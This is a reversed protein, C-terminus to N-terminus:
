VAESWSICRKSLAKWHKQPVKSKTTLFFSHFFYFRDHAGTRFPTWQWSNTNWVFLKSDSTFVFESPHVGNRVPAWLSNEIEHIFVKSNWIVNISIHKKPVLQCYLKLWCQNLNHSITALLQCAMVQILTWWSTKCRIADSRLATM